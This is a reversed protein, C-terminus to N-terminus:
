NLGFLSRLAMDVRRMIDEDAHGEYDHLRSKDIARMQELKIVCYRGDEDQYHHLVQSPIASRRATSTLPAVIITDGYGGAADEQLVICPRLGGQESGVVPNLDVYFIDGRSVVIEDNSYDQHRGKSEMMKAQSELVIYGLDTMTLQPVREYVNYPRMYALDDPAIGNKSLKKIISDKLM